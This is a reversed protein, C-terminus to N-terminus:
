PQHLDGLTLPVGRAREPQGAAGPDDQSAARVSVRGQPPQRRNMQRPPLRQDHRPNPVTAAGPDVLPDISRRTELSSAWADEKHAPLGM